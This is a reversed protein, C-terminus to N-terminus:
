AEDPPPYIKEPRARRRPLEILEVTTGIADVTDLYAYGGDGDLGYGSGDMAVALGAAQAEGVAAELDEVVVAIHHLGYGHEAIHEAYISGGELPEILEIQLSGLRALALRMSYAGPQGRYSMKKVFPKGYTYIHWPGIGLLRWYTEVGKDLDPVLLAIQSIGNKLFSFEALDQDFM